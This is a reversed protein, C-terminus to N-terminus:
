FIAMNLIWLFMCIRLPVKLNKIKNWDFQGCTNTSTTISEYTLRISFERNNDWSLGIIEEDETDTSLVFCALKNAVASPILHHIQEWKWRNREEWYDNVSAYLEPLSVPARMVNFLPHDGIWKDM